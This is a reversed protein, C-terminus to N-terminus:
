TKRSELTRACLVMAVVAALMAIGLWAVSIGHLRGFAIRRGDDVSLDEVPGAIDARLRAIRPAVIFQAIACSGAIVLGAVQRGGWSWGHRRASEIIMVLVGLGIGSAFIGPLVRAIAMGALARTPLVAFLAPAVAISFFSAAGLWLALVSLEIISPSVRRTV